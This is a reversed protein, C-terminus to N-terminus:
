ATRAEIRNLPVSITVVTGQGPASRIGLKGGLAAARAQLNRLGNGGEGAAPPFGVPGLGQGDDSVVLQLTHDSLSLSVTVRRAHAHQVANNLAERAALSLHRHAEAHLQLDPATALLELQLQLDTPELCEQALDALHDAFTALSVNAPTLTQVIQRMNRLASGASNGIHDLHERTQGPQEEARRALDTWLAIQSLNAGLQDHLDRAIREREQARATEREARRQRTVARRWAVLTGAVALVLAGFTFLKWRPSRRDLEQQLAILWPKDIRWEASGTLGAPGGYFLRVQGWLDKGRELKETAVVVDDYGDGNVDGVGVVRRGVSQHNGEGKVVWHPSRSLGQKAGLFVLAAGDLITPVQAQPAGVIVDACGDGNVDGAGGVSYGLIANRQNSEIVWDPRQRPGTTSGYFVFAMGEDTDGHDAFPAGVVIDAFGDANVDGAGAVSFGLHAKEISEVGSRALMESTVTWGPARALGNTSGYFLLVRGYMRAQGPGWHPDGVLLDDCGDGNVDGAAAVVPFDDRLSAKLEVVTEPEAGLGSPSGYWILIRYHAVGGRPEEMQLVWLDDYGDRNLDGARGAFLRSNTAMQRPFWQWGPQHGL